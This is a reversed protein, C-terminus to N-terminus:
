KVEKLYCNIWKVEEMQCNFSWSATSLCMWFCTRKGASVERLKSLFRISLRGAWMLSIFASLTSERLWFELSLSTPITCCSKRYHLSTGYSLESYCILSEYFSMIVHVQVHLNIQYEWNWSFNQCTICNWKNELTLQRIENEMFM